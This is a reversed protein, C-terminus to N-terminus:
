LYTLGYSSAMNADVHEVPLTWEIKHGFKLMEAVAMEGMKEDYLVRVIKASFRHFKQPPSKKEYIQVLYDQCYGWYTKPGDSHRIM